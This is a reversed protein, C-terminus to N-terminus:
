GAIEMLTIMSQGRQNGNQKGNIYAPINAGSTIQQRIQFNYTIASTTAPSDLYSCTGCGSASGDDTSDYGASPAFFYDTGIQTSNRLCRINALTGYSSNETAFVVSGVILIKNSTSTPTISTALGAINSSYVSATNNHTFLTSYVTNVVQLVKGGVGSAFSDSQIKSIPM